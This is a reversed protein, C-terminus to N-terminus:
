PVLMEQAVQLKISSFKTIQQTKLDESHWIETSTSESTKYLPKMEEQEHRRMWTMEQMIKLFYAELVGRVQQHQMIEEETKAVRIRRIIRSCASNCRSGDSLLLTWLLCFSLISSCIITWRSRKMRRMRARKLSMKRTSKKETKTMSSITTMKSCSIMKMVMNNM